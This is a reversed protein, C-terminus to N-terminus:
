RAPSRASHIVGGSQLAGYWWSIEKLLEAATKARVTYSRTVRDAEVRYIPSSRVETVLDFPTDDGYLPLHRHSQPYSNGVPEACDEFSQIGSVSGDAEVVAFLCLGSTPCVTRTPAHDIM